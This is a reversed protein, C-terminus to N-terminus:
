AALAAMVRKVLEFAAGGVQAAETGDLDSFEPMAAPVDKILQGVQTVIDFVKPLM